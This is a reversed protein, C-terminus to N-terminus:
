GVFFKPKITIQKAYTIALAMMSQAICFYLVLSFREVSGVQISHYDWLRVEMNMVTLHSSFFWHHGCRRLSSRLQDSDPM